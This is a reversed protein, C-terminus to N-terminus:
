WDDEGLRVAIARQKARAMALRLESRVEQALPGRSM